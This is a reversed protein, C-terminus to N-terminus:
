NKYMKEKNYDCAAVCVTAVLVNWAVFLTTNSIHPRVVKKFLEFGDAFDDLLIV